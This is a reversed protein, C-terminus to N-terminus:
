LFTNNFVPDHKNLAHLVLQLLETARQASTKLVSMEHASIKQSM